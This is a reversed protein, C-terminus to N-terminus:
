EPADREQTAEDRWQRMADVQDACQAREDILVPLAELAEGITEAAVPTRPCPATMWAPPAM